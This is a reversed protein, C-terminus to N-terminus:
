VPYSRVPPHLCGRARVDNAFRASVPVRRDGTTVLWWRRGERVAGRVAAAAIWIGRNIQLGDVDALQGMADGFRLHLLVSAGTGLHLRCYHDEAEVMQLDGIRAIGARDLLAPRKDVAPPPAAPVSAPLSARGWTVATVTLFIIAGIVLAKAWIDGPGIRVEVGVLAFSAQIELPLAIALLPTGILSARVWDSDRRVTAILWIQWKVIEMTM